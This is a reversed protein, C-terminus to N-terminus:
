LERLLRKLAREEKADMPWDARAIRMAESVTTVEPLAKMVDSSGAQARYARVADAELLLPGVAQYAAAVVPSHGQARLQRALQDLNQQLEEPEMALLDKMLPTKALKSLDRRMRTPLQFM